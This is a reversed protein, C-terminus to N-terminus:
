RYLVTDTEGIGFGESWCVENLAYIDISFGEPYDIFGPLHRLAEVAKLATSESDFVGVLKYTESESDGYSHHVVYVNQNTNM